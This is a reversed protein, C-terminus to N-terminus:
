LHIPHARPAPPAPAPAGAEELGLWCWVEPSLFHQMNNILSTRSMRYMRCAYGGWASSQFSGSLLCAKVMLLLSSQQKHQLQYHWAVGPVGRGPISRREARGGELAPGSILQNQLVGLGAAFATMLQALTLRAFLLASSFSGTSGKPEYNELTDAKM